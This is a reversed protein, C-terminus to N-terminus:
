PQMVCVVQRKWRWAKSKPSHHTMALRCHHCESLILAMYALLKQHAACLEPVKDLKMSSLVKPCTDEPDGCCAAVSLPM